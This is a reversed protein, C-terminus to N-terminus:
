AMAVRNMIQWAKSALSEDILAQLVVEGRKVTESVYRDQSAVGWGIFLGIMGGVFAGQSMLVLIALM